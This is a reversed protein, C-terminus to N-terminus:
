IWDIFPTARQLHSFISGRIGDLSHDNFKVPEETPEGNKEIYKYGRIEKLTNISDKTIYLGRAKLTDIGKRVSDKGKTTGICNFGAQQIEKIRGPDESDAYIPIDRPIDMTKMRNMLDQNTLRSEYILEKCYINDDKISIEGLSTPNNFGFDLWYIREGDPLTDCHQWHTYILNKIEGMIGLGYIKWLNEDADKLREIENITEQNLFPNDKYTSHIIEIDNRTKIKTEIWHFKDHSPNYDLIITGTTRLALQIFDDYSLENAENIFLYKRKRGKVKEYQDVSFFEVEGRRLKYTFDSKNHKKPVYIGANKVIELFDKYASAKLAPLTKRVMSFLEFENLMKLVFFQCVSYTKSSRSSGELIVIRSKVQQLKELVITGEIKLNM